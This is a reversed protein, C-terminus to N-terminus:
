VDFALLRIKMGGVVDVAYQTGWASLDSLTSFIQRSTSILQFFISANEGATIILLLGVINSCSSSGLSAPRFDQFSRIVSPASMRTTAAATIPASTYAKTVTSYFKRDFRDMVSLTANIEPPARPM